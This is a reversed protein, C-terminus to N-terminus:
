PVEYEKKIMGITKASVARAERTTNNITGATSLMFYLLYRKITEDEHIQKRQGVTTLAPMGERLLIKLM